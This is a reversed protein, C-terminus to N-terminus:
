RSVGLEFNEGYGERWHSQDGRRRKILGLGKYWRSHTCIVIHHGCRRQDHHGRIASKPSALLVVVFLTALCVGIDRDCQLVLLTDLNCLQFTQLYWNKDFLSRHKTSTSYAGARIYFKCQSCGPAVAKSIFGRRFQFTNYRSLNEFRNQPGNSAHCSRTRVKRKSEIVYLIFLAAKGDNTSLDPPLGLGQGHRLPLHMALSLTIFTLHHHHWATTSTTTVIHHYTSMM